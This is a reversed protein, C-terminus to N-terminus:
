PIWIRLRFSLSIGSRSMNGVDPIQFFGCKKTQEGVVNLEARANVGAVSAEPDLPIWVRVWAGPNQPDVNFAIKVAGNTSGVNLEM